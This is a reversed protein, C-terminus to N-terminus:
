QDERHSESRTGMLICRTYMLCFCVFLLFQVLPLSRRHTVDLFHLISSFNISHSFSKLRPRSFFQSFKNENLKFPFYVHSGYVGNLFEPIIKRTEPFLFIKFSGLKSAHSMDINLFPLVFSSFLRLLLRDEFGSELM